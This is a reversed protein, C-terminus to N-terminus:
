SPGHPIGPVVEYEDHIRKWRGFLCIGYFIDQAFAEVLLPDVFDGGPIDLANAVPGNLKVLHDKMADGLWRHLLRAPIAYIPNEGGDVAQQYYEWYQEIEMQAYNLYDPPLEELCLGVLREAQDPSFINGLARFESAEVALLLDIQAQDEDAFSFSEDRLLRSFTRKIEAWHGEVAEGVSLHFFAAARDETMIEKRSEM